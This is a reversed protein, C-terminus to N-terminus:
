KREREREIKANNKSTKEVEKKQLSFIKLRVKLSPLLLQLPPQRTPCIKMRNQSSFTWPKRHIDCAFKINPGEGLADTMVFM